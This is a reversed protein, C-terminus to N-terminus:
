PECECVAPRTKACDEDVLQNNNDDALACNANNPGSSPNNDPQGADWLPDTSSFAAGKVTVFVGNDAPDNIGVWTRAQGSANIIGDLETQDDPIALYANSGDAACAAQHTAWTQNGGLVRYKHTGITTTYTGPCGVTVMGDVMGDTMSGDTGADVMISTGDVCVGSYTSGSFEGYKRGSDCSTDVFSCYGTDECQGGAGCQTTDTCKYETKRLCGASAVVAIFLWARM